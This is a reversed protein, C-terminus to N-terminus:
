FIFCAFTFIVVLLTFTTYRLFNLFDFQIKFFHNLCTLVVTNIWAILVVCFNIFTLLVALCLWIAVSACFIYSSVQCHVYLMLGHYQPQHGTPAQCDHSANMCMRWSCRTDPTKTLCCALMVCYLSNSHCCGVDFKWRLNKIVRFTQVSIRFFM